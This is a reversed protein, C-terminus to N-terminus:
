SACWTGTSVSARATSRRAPAAGTTSRGPTASSWAAELIAMSAADIRAVQEEDMPEAVPLGRKLAPLMHASRDGRLERRATRGGRRAAQPEEVLTM